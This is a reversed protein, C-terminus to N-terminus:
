RAGGTVAKLERHVVRHCNACLCQLDDLKTTHDEDMDAVEVAHHHVEICAAGHEGYVEVPDLGCKECFLQGNKRVFAAKKAASLGAGREKKLHQVLKPKGEAWVRDEDTFSVENVTAEGKPVVLFGAEALIRFCPTGVGASFHEPLVEFGLADSAALGFVAKPPLRQGNEAIM